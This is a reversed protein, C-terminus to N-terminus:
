ELQDGSAEQLWPRDTQFLQIDVIPFELINTHSQTTQTTMRPHYRSGVVLKRSLQRSSNTKIWPGLKEKAACDAAYVASTLADLLFWPTWPELVGLGLSLM